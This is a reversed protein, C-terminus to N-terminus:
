RILQPKGFWTDVDFSRGRTQLFNLGSARESQARGKWDAERNLGVLGDLDM